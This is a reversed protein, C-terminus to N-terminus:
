RPRLVAAVVGLRVEAPRDLARAADVIEVHRLRAREHEAHVECLSSSALMCRVIALSRPATNSAPLMTPHLSKRVVASTASSGFLGVLAVRSWSSTAACVANNPRCSDPTACVAHM